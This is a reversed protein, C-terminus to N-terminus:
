FLTKLGNWLAQFHNKRSFDGHASCPNLWQLTHSSADEQQSTHRHAAVEWGWQSQQSTLQLHTPADRSLGCYLPLRAWPWLVSLYDWAWGSQWGTIAVELISVHQRKLLGTLDNSKNKSNWSMFIDELTWLANENFDVMVCIVTAFFGKCGLLNLLM